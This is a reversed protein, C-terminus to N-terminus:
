SLLKYIKLGLALNTYMLLGGIQIRINNAKCMCRLLHRNDRMMQKLTAAEEESVTDLTRLVTKMANGIQTYFSRRYIGSVKHNDVFTYLSNMVTFLDIGNKLKLVAHNAKFVNNRRKGNPLTYNQESVGKPEYKDLKLGTAYDGTNARFGLASKQLMQKGDYQVSYYAKGGEVGLTVRLRGDPSALTNEQAQAAMASMAVLVAMIFNRKKM